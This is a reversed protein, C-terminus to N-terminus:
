QSSGSRRPGSTPPPTTPPGTDSQRRRKEDEALAKRVSTVLRPLQRSVVGRVVLVDVTQYDHVVKARIGKVDRWTVGPVDALAGPSTRSAAEGVQSIRMLVADFTEPNKWWTRGYARAYGIAAQAHSILNGLHQRDRDDM